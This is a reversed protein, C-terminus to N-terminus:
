EGVRWLRTALPKEYATTFAEILTLASHRASRRAEAELWTVSAPKPGPRGLAFRVRGIRARCSLEALAAHMKCIATWDPMEAASRALFALAEAIFQADTEADTERRHESVTLTNAILLLAASIYTCAVSWILRSDDREVVRFLRACRRAADVVEVWGSSPELFPFLTSSSVPEPEAFEVVRQSYDVLRTIWEADHSGVRHTQLFCALCSFHLAVLQSVAPRPSMDVLNDPQLEAPITALWEILMGHIMKSNRQQTDVPQTEAHVSYLREYITGQIRALHIWTQFIDLRVETGSKTVFYVLGNGQTSSPITIDHDNEQQLPPDCTRFSIERDLIYVIWFIRARQLSAEADFLANSKSQHLRLKHALKVASGILSSAITLGPHPTGLHLMVLGLLVQLSLLDHHGGALGNSASKANSICTALDFSPVAPHATARYRFTLALLVNLAASVVEAQCKSTNGGHLLRIFTNQDVLPTISNLNIFYDQIIPLLETLKLSSLTSANISVARDTVSTGLSQSTSKSQVLEEGFNPTVEVNTQVQIEKRRKKINPTYNCQAGYVVCHSCTPKRADCRIKKIHCLDCAKRKELGRVMNTDGAARSM